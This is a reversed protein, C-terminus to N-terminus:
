FLNLCVNQTTFHLLITELYKFFLRINEVYWVNKFPMLIGGYIQWNFGTQIWYKEQFIGM